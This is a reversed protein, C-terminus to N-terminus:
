LLHLLAKTLCKPQKPNTLRVIQFVTHIQIRNGYVNPILHRHKPIISITSRSDNLSTFLNHNEVLTSKPLPNISSSDSKNSHKPAVSEKEYWRLM